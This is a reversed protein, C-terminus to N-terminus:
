FLIHYFIKTETVLLISFLAIFVLLSSYHLLLKISDSCVFLTQLPEDITMMVMIMLLEPLRSAIM